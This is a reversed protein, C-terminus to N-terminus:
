RCLNPTTSRMLQLATNGSTHSEVQIHQAELLDHLQARAASNTELLLCRLGHLEPKETAVLTDKDSHQLPLEFWFSSGQGPESTAGIEGGMGQILRRSIALGLGTGGYKRTTSGDAQAFSDFVAEIKDPDIGVGTDVVSFRLKSVEDDSELMDVVIKIEGEHTFKVANSALNTIVQRIRTPDGVLTQRISGDIHSILELNKRHAQEAMVDASDEVLEEIDFAISEYELKGAEVKSFDLIDNILRLLSRGSSTAVKIQDSQEPNLQTEKLLSLMGLVGNMPTRLEHSMNALFESKARSAEELEVEKAKRLELINGLENVSNGLNVLEKSAELHFDGKAKNNQLLKLQKDIANIPNVVIQNILSIVVLALLTSIGIAYVYLKKVQAQIDAHQKAVNWTVAIEGFSEGEVLVDHSYHLKEAETATSNKKDWSNLVEDNENLIMVAEVDHDNEVLQAIITDLVPRDESLIADLSTASLMSVLKQTQYDFNKKFNVTEQNRAFEAAILGVMM